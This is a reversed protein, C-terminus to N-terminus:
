KKRSKRATKKAAKKKAKAIPKPCKSELGDIHEFLTPQIHNWMPALVFDIGERRALKAAPVFDEDGAVLVIKTVLRKYALSAIDLGIKMDVGKQRIDYKVDDETLDDVTIKRNLIQKARDHHIMWNGSENLQGMRLALKRIRKLEEFLQLKFGYLPSKGFDMATGSIPNHLKKSLPPCDYYFIRYLSEGKTRNIHANALKAVDDAVAAPDTHDRRTYLTKHRKIFFGGDILIAVRDM